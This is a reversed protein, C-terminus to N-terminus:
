EQNALKRNYPYSTANKVKKNFILMLNIMCVAFYCANIAIAGGYINISPIRLLLVSIIFKVVVGILLNVVPTYLKGSGIFVSNSAQLVSLLVVCPSTLRLLKIAINKEMSSLNRFLLSIVQPSLILLGLFCPISVILTLVLIKISQKKKEEEAKCKSISPIAVSGIGYCISM